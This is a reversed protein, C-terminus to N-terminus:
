NVEQHSTAAVQRALQGLSRETLEPIEKRVMGLAGREEVWCEGPKNVCVESVGDQVLYPQIPRLFQRLFVGTSDTAEM